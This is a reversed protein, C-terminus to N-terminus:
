AQPGKYDAKKMGCNICDGHEEDWEHGRGGPRECMDMAHRKDWEYRTEGKTTFKDCHCHLCQGRGGRHVMKPHECWRCPISCKPCMKDGGRHGNPLKSGCFRCKDKM